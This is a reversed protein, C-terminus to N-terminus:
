CGQCIKMSRRLREDAADERAQWEPTFPTVDALPQVTQQAAPTRVTVPRYAKALGAPRVETPLGVTGTRDAVVTQNTERPERQAIARRPKTRTESAVQQPNMAWEPLAKPGAM